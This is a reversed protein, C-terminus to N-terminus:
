VFVSTSFTSRLEIHKFYESIGQCLAEAIKLQYEKTKLLQTEDYNSLFGCEAIVGPITLNEFLLKKTDLKKAVRNNSNDVNDVVSKQLIEALVKSEPLTDNYFMQAGKYQHETFYNLHISIILDAGSNNAIKRRNILDSHKKSKVSESDDSHLSIDSDRTMIVTAGYKQLSNKLYKSISLNIDKEVTGDEAVAGGDIGGHGADIVITKGYLPLTTSNIEYCVLCSSILITCFLM